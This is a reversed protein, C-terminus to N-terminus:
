ERILLSNAMFSNKLSKLKEDYDTSFVIFQCKPFSESIRVIDKGFDVPQFPASAVNKAIEKGITNLAKIEIKELEKSTFEKQTNLVSM